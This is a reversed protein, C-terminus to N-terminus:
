TARLNAESSWMLPPRAPQFTTVETVSSSACFKLRSGMGVVVLAVLAGGLEDLDHAPQPVAPLVVGEDPCPLGAQEEVRGLHM